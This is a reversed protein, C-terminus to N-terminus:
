RCKRLRLQWGGVRPPLLQLRLQWGVEKSKARGTKNRKRRRQTGGGGFPLDGIGFLPAKEDTNVSTSTGVVEALESSFLVCLVLFGRLM